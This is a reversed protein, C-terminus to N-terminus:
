ILRYEAHLNGTYEGELSINSTEVYYFHIIPVFSFALAMWVLFTKWGIRNILVPTIATYTSASWLPCTTSAPPPGCQAQNNADTYCTEGVACCLQAYYGCPNLCGNTNTPLPTTSPQTPSIVIITTSGDLNAREGHQITSPPAYVPAILSFFLLRCLAAGSRMKLFAIALGLSKHKAM